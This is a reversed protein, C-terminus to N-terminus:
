GNVTQTPHYAEEESLVMKSKLWYEAPDLRVQGPESCCRPVESMITDEEQIYKKPFHKKFEDQFQRWPMWVKWKMDEQKHNTANGPYDPSFINANVEIKDKDLVSFVTETLDLDEQTLLPRISRIYLSDIQQARELLREPHLEANFHLHLLGGKPVKMAIRYLLSDNDIRDKNTLYQGGMDRTESSPIAESALNGFVVRREYERILRIIFAAKQEQDSESGSNAKPKAERDWADDDEKRILEAHEAKYNNIATTDGLAAAFFDRVPVSEVAMDVTKPEEYHLPARKIPSHSVVRRRKKRSDAVTM